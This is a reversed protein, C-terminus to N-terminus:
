NARTRIANIAEVLEEAYESDAAIAAEELDRREAQRRASDCNGQYHDMLDQYEPKVDNPLTNFQARAQDALDCHYEVAPDMYARWSSM